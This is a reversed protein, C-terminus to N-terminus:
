PFGIRLLNGSRARWVPCFLGVARKRAESRRRRSRTAQMSVRRCCNRKRWQVASERFSVRGGLGARLRFLSGIDALQATAERLRGGRLALACPPSSRSRRLHGHGCVPCVTPDRGTLRIM